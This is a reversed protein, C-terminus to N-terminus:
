AHLLGNTSSTNDSRELVDAVGHHEDVAILDCADDSRM